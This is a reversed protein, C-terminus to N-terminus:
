ITDGEGGMLRLKPEQALSSPREEACGQEQGLRRGCAAKYCVKWALGQLLCLAQPAHCPNDQLQASVLASHLGSEADSLALTLVLLVGHTLTSEQRLTDEQLFWVTDQLRPFPGGFPHLGTPCAPWRGNVPLGVSRLVM